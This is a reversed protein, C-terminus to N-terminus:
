TKPGLLTTRNRRDFPLTFTVRISIFFLNATSTDDRRTNPDASSNPGTLIIDLSGNELIM